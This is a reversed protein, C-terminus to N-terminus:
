ILLYKYNNNKCLDFPIYPFDIVYREKPRSM